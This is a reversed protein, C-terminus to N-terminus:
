VGGVGRESKDALGRGRTEGRVCACVCVEARGAREEVNEKKAQVCNNEATVGDRM